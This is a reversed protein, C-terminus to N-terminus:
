TAVSSLRITMGHTRIFAADINARLNTTLIALGEFRDLRQLLYATELNAYRDHSDSLQLQDFGKIAGPDLPRLQGSVLLPQMEDACVEVVDARFGGALKAAAAKDSNFSATQLDLDPNQQRFPDLLDDTVTDGYAFFRLAGTAPANPDKPAPAVSTDGSGSGCGALAGLLAIAVCVQAVKIM